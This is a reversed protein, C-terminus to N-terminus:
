LFKIYKYVKQVYRRFSVFNLTFFEPFKLKKCFTQLKDAFMQLIFNIYCKEAIYRYKEALFSYFSM